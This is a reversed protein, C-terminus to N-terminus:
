LRVQLSIRVLRQLRNVQVWGFRKNWQDRYGAGGLTKLSLPM